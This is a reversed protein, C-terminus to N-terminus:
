LKTKSNLSTIKRLQKLSSVLLNLDDTKLDKFINILWKEHEVVMKKYNSTGKETLEVLKVRRDKISPVHTILGESVMRNVLWTVNGNSVMMQQSLETKSLPKEAHDLVALLDFQPLTSAFNKHLQTRLYREIEGTNKLLGLWLRILQKKDFQSRSATSTSINNM